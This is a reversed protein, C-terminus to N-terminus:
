TAAADAAFMKIRVILMLESIVKTSYLVAKCVSLKLYIFASAVSATYVIM